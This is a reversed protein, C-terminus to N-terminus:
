VCQHCQENQVVGVYSLVEYADDLSSFRQRLGGFIHLGVFFSTEFLCVFSLSMTFYLLVEESSSGNSINKFHVKVCIIIKLAPEIIWLFHKRPSPPTVQQCTKM